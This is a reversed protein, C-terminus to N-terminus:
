FLVRSRITRLLGRSWVYLLSRRGCEIKAVVSAGPRLARMAEQNEPVVIAAVTPRDGRVDTAPAVKEVTGTYRTEPATALIFRARLQSDASKLAGAVDAIRDDPIELEVIWPGALDAVTLLVQGRAVPRSQLLEQANWTLLRGDMPSRIHLEERRRELLSRQRQLGEIQKRLSEEEGSRLAAERLDGRSSRDARLREAELGGLQERATELQGVIGETEFQLRPDRLEILEDNLAVHQGAEQVLLKEVVGDVPAFLHRRTRPQLTGTAEVRLETPVVALVLLIVAAAIVAAISWPQRRLFALWRARDLFNSLWRLPMEERHLAHWLASASHRGVADCLERTEGRDAQSFEEVVLVAFPEDCGAEEDEGAPRVLPLVAVLRASSADHYDNLPEELEPPLEIPDKGSWVPSGGAAVLGALSELQAITPSHHNVRDCGSVAVATWRGRRRVITSLRDCGILRRGENAVECATRELDSSRHVTQAFQDIQRWQRERHGLGALRRNRHYSAVLEAVIAAFRTQGAMAGESVQAPQHLELVGGNNDDVQWPSLLVQLPTQSDGSRFARCERAAMVGDLRTRHEANPETASHTLREQAALHLGGADSVWLAAGVAATAEVLERLVVRYFDAEDAGQEALVALRAIVADPEQGTRSSKQRFHSPVQDPM